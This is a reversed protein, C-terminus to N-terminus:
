IRICTSTCHIITPDNAINSSENGIYVLCIVSPMALTEDRKTEIYLIYLSVVKGNIDRVYFRKGKFKKAFFNHALAVTM